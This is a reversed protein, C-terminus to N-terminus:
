GYVFPEEISKDPTGSLDIVNNNAGSHAVAEGTPDDFGPNVATGTERSYFAFSEPWGGSYDVSTLSSGTDSYYGWKSGLRVEVLYMKQKCNLIDDRIKYVEYANSATGSLYLNTDIVRFYDGLETAPMWLNDVELFSIATNYRDLTRSTFSQARSRTQVLQNDTVFTRGKPTTATQESSNYAALDAEYKLGVENILNSINVKYKNKIINSNINLNWTPRVIGFNAIYTRFKIKGVNDTFVFGESAQAVKALSWGYTKGSISMDIFDIGNELDYDGATLGMGSLLDTLITKSSVLGTWLRANATGSPLPLGM